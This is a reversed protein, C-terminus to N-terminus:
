KSYLEGQFLLGNFVRHKLPEVLLPVPKGNTDECSPCVGGTTYCKKCISCSYVLPGEYPTDPYDLYNNNCKDPM